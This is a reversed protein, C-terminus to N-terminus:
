KKNNMANKRSIDAVIRIKVAEVETNDTEIQDYKSCASQPIALAKDMMAMNMINAIMVAIIHSM